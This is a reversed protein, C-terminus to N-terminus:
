YNGSLMLSLFSHYGTACRLCHVFTARSDLPAYVVPAQLASLLETAGSVPIDINPM